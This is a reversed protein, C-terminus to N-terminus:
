PHRVQLDLVRLRPVEDTGDEYGGEGRVSQDGGSCFANPGQGAVAIALLDTLQVKLASCLTAADRHIMGAHELQYGKPVIVAACGVACSSSASVQTTRPSGSLM